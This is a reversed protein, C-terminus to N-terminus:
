KVCSQDGCKVSISSYGTAGTSSTSKGCGQALVTFLVAILTAILNKTKM